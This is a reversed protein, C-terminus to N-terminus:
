GEGESDEERESVANNEGNSSAIYIGMKSVAEEDKM